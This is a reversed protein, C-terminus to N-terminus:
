FVLIRMGASPIRLYPRPAKARDSKMPPRWDTALVGFNENRGLFFPPVASTGNHAEVESTPMFVGTYCCTFGTYSLNAHKRVSLHSCVPRPLWKDEYSPGFLALNIGLWRNSTNRSCWVNNQLGWHHRADCGLRPRVETKRVSYHHKQHKQPRNAVLPPM